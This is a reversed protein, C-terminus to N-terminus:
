GGSEPPSPVAITAWVTTESEETKVGWATALADVLRLGMGGAGNRRSGPEALRPQGLGTPSTIAIEVSDTRRCVEVTVPGGTGGHQVCNAVLESAVLRLADLVEPTGVENRLPELSARARAVASGDLRLQGRM